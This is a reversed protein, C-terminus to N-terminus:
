KSVHKRRYYIKYYRDIFDDLYKEAEERSSFERKLPRARRLYTEGVLCAVKGSVNNKATCLKFVDSM